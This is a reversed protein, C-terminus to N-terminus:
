TATVSINVLELEPEQNAQVQVSNQDASVGYMTELAVNQSASVNWSTGSGGTITTGPIIGGAGDDLTQGVALAGAVVSSVTLVNAAISGTIQADATNISSLYITRVQAWGGLAAIPAVYRLALVLSAIRARPGGDGGAFANLIAQQIQSVANAPVNPGNVINVVIYFQLGVPTEFSVSYSPPTTAAFLPNPDTVTVTTNGYYGAGGGKKTFIAMAIAAPTAGVAAIYISNAPITVGLVTVPASSGNDYGWYDLVGPVKAVAGVISGIAGFSNGAVTSQRRAEFQAPSEVDTGVAGSIVAVSDWGNIAQYIQVTTPVPIPGAVTCTFPLTVTGGTIPITGGTICIYQNGAPDEVMAGNTIPVNDGGCAIQLVTSQAPLRDIYYLRGIADQMRGTAYAPDMQQTINQFTGNAAAIIATESTAIQGQPTNLAPNLVYGTLAWAAAQDAQVGALIASEPPGVFGAPGFSVPPVNTAM